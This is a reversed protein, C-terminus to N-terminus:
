RKKKECTCPKMMSILGAVVLIWGILMWWDWKLWYINALVLIGLILKKVRWCGCGM